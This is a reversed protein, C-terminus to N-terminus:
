STEDVNIHRQSLTTHWLCRFSPSILFLCHCFLHWMHFLFFFPLLFIWPTGCDCVAARGLCWSSFLCFWVLAFRVFTRFAGLNAIEEGLLTIM